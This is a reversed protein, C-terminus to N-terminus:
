RRGRLSDRAQDRVDEDEDYEAAYELASRVGSDPLFDALTEAAEERVEPDPDGALSDLLPGRMAPETVHSLQRWVDARVEPSESTRVLEVMADVVAPSRGERGEPDRLHRLQRLAQLKEEESALPDTARQQLEVLDEPSREEGRVLQLLEEVSGPGQPEAVAREVAELRATLGALSAAVAAPADAAAGGSGSEAPEGPAPQAVRRAPAAALPRPRSARELESRLSALELRVSELEGPDVAASEEPPVPAPGAGALAALSLACAALSLALASLSVPDRRM